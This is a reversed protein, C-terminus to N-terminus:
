RRPAKVEQFSKIRGTLVATTDHLVRVSQESKEFKLYTNAGKARGALHAAKSQDIRGSPHVYLVDDALLAAFAEFDRAVLSNTRRDDLSLIAAQISPDPM